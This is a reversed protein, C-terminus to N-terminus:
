CRSAAADSSFINTLFMFKVRVGPLVGEFRYIKQPGQRLQPDVVLKYNKKKKDMPGDGSRM